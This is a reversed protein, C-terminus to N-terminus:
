KSNLIQKNFILLSKSDKAAKSKNFISEHREENWKSLIKKIEVM